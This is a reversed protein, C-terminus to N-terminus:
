GERLDGVLLDRCCLPHIDRNDGRRPGILFPVRQQLSQTKWELILPRKHRLFCQYYLAALLWLIRSPSVIPTVQASSRMRVDTIEPKTTKAEALKRM